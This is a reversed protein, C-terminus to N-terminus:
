RKEKAIEAAIVDVAVLLEKALKYILVGGLTEIESKVEDSLNDATYVIVRLTKFRGVARISRLVELGNMRPMNYDTIVLDPSSLTNMLLGIVEDGDTVATVANGHQELLLSTLERVIKTDDAFLIRM